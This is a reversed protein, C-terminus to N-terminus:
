DCKRLLKKLGKPDENFGLEKAKQADICMKEDNNLDKQAMARGFYAKANDPDIKIIRSYDASVGAYDKIINKLRARIFYAEKEEPKLIIAENCDDIGDEYSKIERKAEARRCYAKYKMDETPFAKFVWTFKSIAFKYEENQMFELGAKYHDEATNQATLSLTAPLFLIIILLKRM